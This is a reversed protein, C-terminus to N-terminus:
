KSGIWSLRLRAGLTHHSRLTSYNHPTTYTCPPCSVLAQEPEAVTEIRTRTCHTEDITSPPQASTFVIPFFYITVSVRIAPPHHIEMSVLDHTEATYVNSM